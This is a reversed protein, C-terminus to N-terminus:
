HFLALIRNVIRNTIDQLSSVANQLKGGFTTETSHEASTEDWVVDAIEAASTMPTQAVLEVKDLYLIHATSGSNSSNHLIKIVAIGLTHDKHHPSLTFSYTSRTKSIPMTGVDEFTSYTYNYAQIRLYHSAGGDYYGWIRIASAHSDLTMDSFNINLELFTGTTTEVLSVETGAVGTGEFIALRDYDGTLTGGVVKTISTPVYSLDATANSGTGWALDGRARIAEVSDKLRDFTQSTNKSTILDIVSEKTVTTTWDTDKAVKILHDLNNVELAAQTAAQMETLDVGSTAVDTVTTNIDNKEEPYLYVLVPISNANTCSAKFTVADVNMQTDTLDSYCLGAATATSPASLGVWDGANQVISAALGAPATIIAGTNDRFVFYLRYAVNKKPVPRADTSAM